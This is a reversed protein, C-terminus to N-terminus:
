FTPTAIYTLTTNYDDAAEQLATIEIKYGVTTTGISATTGDSPGDHHFVERPTTSAAIYSDLTGFEGGPYFGGLSELDTDSSALGWHGWSTEDNITPVPSNWATGTDSVDSGEDFNDIIAGTSSQLNGDSEVTVVFGNRSNTTVQLGQTLVEAVGAVLVGFDILTPTTSGTSIDGNIATGTAQGSIVFDFATLVIATVEVNDIIAVRTKGTDGETTSVVFETSGGADPNTIIGEVLTIVVEQGATVASTLSLTVVQGTSNFDDIVDAVGAITASFNGTLSAAVGTFGLTGLDDPFTISIESAADLASGTPITFAITHGAAVSLDSDTLTNSITTLNAAQATTYYGVSWILVASAVLTAVVRQAFGVKTTIAFM